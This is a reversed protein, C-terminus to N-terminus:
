AEKVTEEGERIAGYRLSSAVSARWICVMMPYSGRVGRVGDSLVISQFKLFRQRGFTIKGWGM